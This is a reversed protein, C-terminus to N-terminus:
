QVVEISPSLVMMVLWSSVFVSIRGAENVSCILRRGVEKAEMSNLLVKFSSLSITGVDVLANSFLTAAVMAGSNSDPSSIEDDISVGSCARSELVGVNADLEIILKSSKSVSNTSEVLRLGDSDEDADTECLEILPDDLFEAERDDDVKVFGLRVNVGTILGLRKLGVRLLGFVLLRDLVSVVTAIIVRLSMVGVRIAVGAEKAGEEGTKPLEDLPDELEAETDPPLDPLRNVLLLALM